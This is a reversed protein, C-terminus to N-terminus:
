YVYVSKGAAASLAWSSCCGMLLLYVWHGTALLVYLYSIFVHNLLNILPPSSVFIGHLLIGLLKHLDEVRLSTSCFEGIQLFSSCVTAEKWLSSLTSYPFFLTCACYLFTVFVVEALHEPGVQTTM